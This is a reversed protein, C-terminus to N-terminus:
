RLVPWSFLATRVEVNQCIDRSVVVGNAHGSVLNAGYRYFAVASVEAVDRCAAMLPSVVGLHVCFVHLQTSCRVRSLQTSLHLSRRQHDHRVCSNDWGRLGSCAMSDSAVTISFRIVTFLSICLLRLSFDLRVPWCRAGGTAQLM